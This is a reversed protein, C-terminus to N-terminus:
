AVSDRWRTMINVATRIDAMTNYIHPCLRVKKESQRNTKPDFSAAIGKDYLEDSLKKIQSGQKVDVWVVGLSMAPDDPTTVTWNNKKLETMLVGALEKVRAYARPYGINKWMLETLSLTIINVDDRQGLLEFREATQPLNNWNLIDIKYDYAFINPEFNKAKAPDVYLIGTEKPGLFWKHCSSVFSHCFPQSFDLQRAGFAMTGDIHIHCNHLAANEKVHKWISQIAMEPIRMGNGNSTESFSVFRTHENIHTIFYEAVQEPRIKEPLRVLHIDFIHGGEGSDHTPEKVIKGGRLQWAALNTPHNQDWLVINDRTGDAGPKSWKRYGGNIANNAESANRVIALDKSNKIGLSVALAERAQDFQQARPGGRMRTQQAVNRNFEFRLTNAAILLPRPEPCLNAANMPVKVTGPGANIFDFQRQFITWYEDSDTDEARLLAYFQDLEAYVKAYCDHSIFGAELLPELSSQLQLQCDEKTFTNHTQTSM